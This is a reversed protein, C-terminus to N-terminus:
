PQTHRRSMLRPCDAMKIPPPYGSDSLKQILEEVTHFIFYLAGQREIMRQHRVQDKKQVAKGTKGEAEAHRGLPSLVLVIDGGGNKGFKVFRGDIFGAGTNQQWAKYGRIALEELADKILKTHEAGSLGGVGASVM